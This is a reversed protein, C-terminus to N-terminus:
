GKYREIVHSTGMTEWGPPLANRMELLMFAETLSHSLLYDTPKGNERFAAIDDFWQMNRQSSLYRPHVQNANSFDFDGVRQDILMPSFIDLFGPSFIDALGIDVINDCAYGDLLVFQDPTVEHPNDGNRIDFWRNYSNVSNLVNARDVDTNYPFIEDYREVFMNRAQRSEACDYPDFGIDALPDIANFYVPWKTITNISGFKRVDSVGRDSINLILPDPDSRLIMKIAWDPRRDYYRSGKNCNVVYIQKDTPRNFMMWNIISVFGMHTPKRVHLHSTGAGGYRRSTSRNIPDTVTNRASDVDSASIIWSLYSGAYGPPYLIYVNKKLM